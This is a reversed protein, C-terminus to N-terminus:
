RDNLTQWDAGAPPNEIWVALRFLTPSIIKLLASKVM